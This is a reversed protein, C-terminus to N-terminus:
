RSDGAPPPVIQILTPYTAPESGPKPNPYGPSVDSQYDKIVIGPPFAMTDERFRGVEFQHTAPVDFVLNGRQKLLTRYYTVLEVFSATSGFIYYRQGQGADYSALFQAAPYVPLGLTAETPESGASPTPGPSSPSPQGPSTPQSTAPRPFPQPVPPQQALAAALLLAVLPM